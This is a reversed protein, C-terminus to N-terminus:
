QQQMMKHIIFYSLIILLLFILLTIYLWPHDKFRLSERRRKKKDLKKKLDRNLAEVMFSLKEKDKIETLGELADNNFESGMMIKEVENKQEESLQGHLYKLLTEQDVESSFNSLIDKFNDDM